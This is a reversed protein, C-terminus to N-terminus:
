FINKFNTQMPHSHININYFVAHSFLIYRKCLTFIYISNSANIGLNPTKKVHIHWQLEVHTYKIFAKESKGIHKYEQEM